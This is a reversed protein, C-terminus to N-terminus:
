HKWIKTKICKTFKKMLRNLVEQNKKCLISFQQFALEVGYILLSLKNISSEQQINEYIILDGQFKNFFKSPADQFSLVKLQQQVQHERALELLLKLKWNQVHYFLYKEKVTGLTSIDVEEIM